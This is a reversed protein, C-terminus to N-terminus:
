NASEASGGKETAAEGGVTEENIKVGHVLLREDDSVNTCTSLSVIKSDTGVEVDTQYGSISRIYNIYNQFEADSNYWKTYSESTDKVVSVAFVQYTSVKGDPTYIYFYPHETGFSKTKYKRLMGFMSGNKMNHGYIFTNRDSFDGANYMDVFLTGASNKKGEFTTKLYKDNDKGKVVPYSIQSPEDFRIWAVVDPNIEELKAFDVMFTEEEEEGEEPKTYTIAIDELSAYEEEGKGYESFIGWLKFASFLFVGIAIILVVNSVIQGVSKKKRRGRHHKTGKHQKTKDEM